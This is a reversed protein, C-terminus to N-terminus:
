GIYIERNRPVKCGVNFGIKGSSATKITQKNEEMSEVRCGVLRNLDDKYFLMDGVSVQIGNLELCIVTDDKFYSYPVGLSTLGAHFNALGPEMFCNRAAEKTIYGNEIDSYLAFLQATYIMTRSQGEADQIQTDNFPPITRKLPEVNKQNNVIYIGHVKTTDHQRMRRNVIKDVQSCETDASTGNIGKVELILHNGVYELCLDEELIAGEEVTEDKDIVNEFGLWELYTKVAKVLKDGTETILQKLHINQEHIATEEEELKKIEQELEDRKASIRNKIELENPLLYSENRIWNSAEIDPFYNSFIKFLVNDFLDKLLGAKDEVQPLVFQVFNKSEYYMYSICEGSENNLLSFYHKDTVPKKNEIVIPLTFVRYYELHNQRGEFLIKSISNELVKVRQGYKEKGSTLHWDEINSYPGITESNRGSVDHTNYTVQEEHGVFIIEIRNHGSLQDFQNSLHALGLPRLDVVNVPYRCELYKNDSSTVKTIQHETILYDKYHPNEVDHIFVHFEHLNLPYNVDTKVTKSGYTNRGWPISFVSGLSGDYVNLDLSKLYDICEQTVDLCCINTKQIEAM